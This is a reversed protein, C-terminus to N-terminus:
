WGFLLIGSHSLHQIIPMKENYLVHGTLQFTRHATQQIHLINTRIMSRVINDHHATSRLGQDSAKHISRQINDGQRTFLDKVKKMKKCVTLVYNGYFKKWISDTLRNGFKNISSLDYIYANFIDM